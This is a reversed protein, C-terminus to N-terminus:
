SEKKVFVIKKRDTKFMEDYFKALNDYESAPYNAIHREYMRVVQIKNDVVNFSISYSGFQNQISKSEPLAELQYGKPLTILITDIDKFAEPYEITFKRPKDTNLKTDSQNFINPCIFLRKGTITAYNPASIKLYENTIPITARTGKYAFSDVNYTPMNLSSNLYKTREENTVEYMLTHLIEQKIGTAKTNVNATINGEDDVVAKVNRVEVNDSASYTPTKVVVGGDKTIMLAKRNGTFSGMYGPSTNKSTCELWVTDNAMPVCIIAHNFYPAPADEWLGTENAGAKILVYNADIGAEKLLSLMYNSLAKCDGYGKTAVYNADFPQWSGMGLQVSIYRTNKQLYNYLINIKQHKDQINDTLRHVDEKVNEPLTNRGENLRAIFNGLQNWSEMNGTYGEVEFNSPMIYVSPSFEESPPQYPEDEYAVLNNVHWSYIINPGFSTDPKGINGLQKTSIKYNSPFEVELTSKQVAYKESKVPSWNPLFFIGKFEQEYEFEVTYPYNRYFFDYAKMRDDTAMSIPDNMAFDYIDKKRASKIEKGDANYLHASIDSVTIFKNYAVDFKASKEGSENLITIAYKHKVIAKGPSKINIYMDEMRKVVNANQLLSDPINKVAYDQAKANFYPLFFLIFLTKKM